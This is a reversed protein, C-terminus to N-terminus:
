KRYYYADFWVVWSKGADGSHEILQRVRGDDLPTFTMRSLVRTNRQYSTGTFRMAADRFEGEYEIVGGNDSVWRQTWRGTAPNFYNWSKGAGGSSGTWNEVLACGGLIKEILNTGATQGQPTKVEWEGLWFDFARHGPSDCAELFRERLAAYRADARLAEFAPLTDAIRPHFGAEFARELWTLAEDAHGLRAHAAALRIKVVTLPYGLADAKELAAIAPEVQGLSQRAVGLRFWANSDEPARAVIQEYAAAAKEWEGADFAAEAEAQQASALPAPAFAVTLLALMLLFITRM